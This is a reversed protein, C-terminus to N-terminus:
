CHVQITRAPEGEDIILEDDEGWGVAEQEEPELKM